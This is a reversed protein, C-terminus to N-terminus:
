ERELIVDFHIDASGLLNERSEPVAYPYQLQIYLARGPVLRSCWSETLSGAGHMHALM